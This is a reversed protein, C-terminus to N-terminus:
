PLPGPGTSARRWAASPMRAPAQARPRALVEGVVDVLHTQGLEAPRTIAAADGDAAGSKAAHRVMGSGPSGLASASCRCSRAAHAAHRPARRLLPPM